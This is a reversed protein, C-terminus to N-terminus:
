DLYRIKQNYWSISTGGTSTAKYLRIDGQASFKVFTTSGDAKIYKRVQAGPALNNFERTAQLSTANKVYNQTGTSTVNTLRAGSRVGSWGAPPLKGGGCLPDVTTVNTGSLNESEIVVNGEFAEVETASVSEDVLEWEGSTTELTSWVRDCAADVTKGLPLLLFLLALSLSISIFKKLLFGEKKHIIICFNDSYM